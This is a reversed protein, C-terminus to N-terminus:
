WSHIALCHLFASPCRSFTDDINIRIFLYVVTQMASQGPGVYVDGFLGLPDEM